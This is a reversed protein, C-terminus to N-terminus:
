RVVGCAIRGGDRPGAPDSRNDGRRFVELSRERVEGISLRPALMPRDATGDGAVVLAPLDGPQVAAGSGCDRTPQVRLGHRGPPLGRLDPVLVLGRATDMLTVTGIEPGIGDPDILHITVTALSQAHVLGAFLLAVVGPLVPKSM